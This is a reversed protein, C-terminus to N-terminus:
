LKIEKGRHKISMESAELIRVVNLGSRGDSLPCKGDQICQVFETAMHQLAETTDLKPAWMDGLRYSVRLDHSNEQPTVEVGRDYIKVKDSAQMDDYHITKKSGGFLMSRIKVPSLWNNHFHAILGSDYYVTLYAVNELGNGVHCAGNACVSVPTERVLHEVIAIDHPALDWLVNVDSQVLGLNIRVSDIFYLEGVDGSTVIEKIKRVAGTYIFTHDVMFTLNHKEALAVLKEADAVSTTLPKEVLVNKGGELAKKAIEYHTRVPTSIVVADISPDNLVEQYSQTTKLFPYRVAAEALRSANTDCCYRVCAGATETLNRILNPGWYGYGIVALNIM